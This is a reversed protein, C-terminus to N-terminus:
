LNVDQLKQGKLEALEVTMSSYSNAAQEPEAVLKAMRFGTVSFMAILALIVAAARKKM